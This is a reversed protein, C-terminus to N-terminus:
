LSCQTFATNNGEQISSSFVLLLHQWYSTVVMITKAKVWDEKEFYFHLYNYKTSRMRTFDCNSTKLCLQPTDEIWGGHQLPAGTWSPVYKVTDDAEAQLIRVGTDRVGAREHLGPLHDLGARKPVVLERHPTTRKGNDAPHYEWAADCRAGVYSGPNWM